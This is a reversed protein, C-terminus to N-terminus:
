PVLHLSATHKPAVRGFHRRDTTALTRIKLREAVAVISVDVFGLEPYREMLESCRELDRRRLADIELEGAAVSRIFAREAAPGLRAHLLYTVEPLVTVPVLLLESVGEVWARTRRHWADDRDALAYLVGTDVLIM